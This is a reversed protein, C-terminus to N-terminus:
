AATKLQEELYLFHEAVNLLAQGDKQIDAISTPVTAPQDPAPTLKRTLTKVGDTIKYKWLLTSGTSTTITIDESFNQTNITM